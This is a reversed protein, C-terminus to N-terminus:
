REFLSSSRPKSTKTKLYHAALGVLIFALGLLLVSVQVFFFLAICFVIAIIPTYRTRLIQTKWNSRRILQLTAVCSLLYPIITFLVTLSALMSLNSVFYLVTMALIFQLLMARDPTKFIPHLHNLFNPFLDDRAMAYSVRATGLIVANISGIISIL